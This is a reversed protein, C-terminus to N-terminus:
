RASFSPRTTRRIQRLMQRIKQDLLEAHLEPNLNSDDIRCGSTVATRIGNADAEMRFM